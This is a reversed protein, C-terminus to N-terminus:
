VKTKLQEHLRRLVAVPGNAPCIGDAPATRRM